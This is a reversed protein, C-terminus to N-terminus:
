ESKYRPDNKARKPADKVEQSVPQAVETIKSKVKSSETQVSEKKIPAPKKAAVKQQNEQTNNANNKNQNPSKKDNSTKNNRNQPRRNRNNKQPARRNDRRSNKNGHQKNKRTHQTKARPKRKNNSKKKKKHEIKKASIQWAPCGDRRKCTTFVGGMVTTTNENNTVSNGKLRPESEKNLTKNDLELFSININKYLCKRDLLIKRVKKLLDKNYVVTGMHEEKNEFILEESNIYDKIFINKIPQTQKLENWLNLNKLFDRSKANVALTRSDDISLNGKDIVLVRYKKKLLSLATLCGIMGAGVILFDYKHIKNKIM